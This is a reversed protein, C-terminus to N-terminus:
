WSLNYLWAYNSAVLMESTSVCSNRLMHGEMIVVFTVNLYFQKIELRVSLFPKDLLGYRYASYLRVQVPILSLVQRGDVVENRGFEFANTSRFSFEM